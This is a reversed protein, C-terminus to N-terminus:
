LSCVQTDYSTTLGTTNAVDVNVSGSSFTADFTWTTTRAAASNKQYVYVVEVSITGWTPCGTAWNGGQQAIIIDTLTAEITFDHHVTSDTSVFKHNVETNATGSVTTSVGDIGAFHLDIVRDLNTHTVTTDSYTASYYHRLNMADAGVPTAIPDVGDLYQLSDVRSTGLGSALDTVYVVWWDFDNDAPTESSDPVFPGFLVDRVQAETIGAVEIGADLRDVVETLTSNVQATVAALVLAEENDPPNTTPPPNDDDSCGAM